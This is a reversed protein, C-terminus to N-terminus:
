GAVKLWVGNPEREYKQGQGTGLGRGHVNHCTPCMIAWPGQKTAGDIFTGRDTYAFILDVDCLDCSEPVHGLWKSM